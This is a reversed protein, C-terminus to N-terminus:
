KAARASGFEKNIDNSNEEITQTVKKFNDFPTHWSLYNPVVFGFGIFTPVVFPYYPDDDVEGGGMQIVINGWWFYFGTSM